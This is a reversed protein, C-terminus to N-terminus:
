LADALSAKNAVRLTFKNDFLAPPYNCLEHQFVNPLDDRYKGATVLRQFLLKPDIHVVDEQIKYTSKNGM